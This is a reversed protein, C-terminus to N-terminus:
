SLLFHALMDTAQEAHEGEEAAMERLVRLVDERRWGSLFLEEVLPFRLKPDECSAIFAWSLDAVEDSAATSLLAVLAGAQVHEDEDKALKLLIEEVDDGKHMAMLATFITRIGPHPECLVQSYLARVEETTEVQDYIDAHPAQSMIRQSMLRGIEKALPSDKPSGLEAVNDGGESKDSDEVGM